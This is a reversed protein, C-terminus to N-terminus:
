KKLGLNSLLARTQEAEVSSVTNQASITEKVKRRKKPSFVRFWRKVQYFPMLWPHKKLNPYSVELKARPLFMIKFFTRGKGQGNAVQITAYNEFDGYAGGSLIFKEMQSTTQSGEVNELWMRCLNKSENYFNLLGAKELMGKLKQEDISVKNIILWLDILPRVGCGGYTFHNAMHALHYFLLMENSMRYECATNEVLSCEEWVGELIADEQLVSDDQKLSHHLEFHIGSPSELQYDYTTTNTQQTYGNSCLASAARELDESRVLIDIDCSTRMWPEPYLERLVAGKLPLFPINNKEFLEKVTSLEFNLLEYRYVSLRWQKQFKLSIDGEGLADYKMLASSVIHAIDHAKSLKYLQEMTENSLDDLYKGDLEKGCIESQILSFLILTSTKNKEM